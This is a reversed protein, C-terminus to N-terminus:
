LFDILKDWIIQQIGDMKVGLFLIGDNIDWSDVLECVRCLCKNDSSSNSVDSLAIVKAINPDIADNIETIIEMEQKLEEAEIERVYKKIFNESSSYVKSFLTVAITAYRNQRSIQPMLFGDTFAKEMYLRLQNVLGADSFVNFKLAKRLINESLKIKNHDAYIFATVHVRRWIIASFILIFTETDKEM